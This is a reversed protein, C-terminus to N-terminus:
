HYILQCNKKKKLSMIQLTYMNDTTQHISLFNIIDWQEFKVQEQM